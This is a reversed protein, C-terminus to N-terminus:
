RLCNCKLSAEIDLIDMRVSVARQLIRIADAVVLPPGSCLLHLMDFIDLDYRPLCILLFLFLDVLFPMKMQRKILM